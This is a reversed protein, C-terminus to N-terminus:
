VFAPNRAVVLGRKRGVPDTLIEFGHSKLFGMVEAHTPKGNREPSCDIAIMKIKALARECGYIVEPEAGEADCKLLAVQAIGQQEIYDDLRTAQMTVKTYYSKDEPEILTSDADMPRLWFSREGSTDAAAMPVATASSFLSLNKKLIRFVDADPEFSYTQCGRSLCFRSFEGINAGIDIVTDGTSLTYFEEYGFLEALYRIRTDIGKAFNLARYPTFIAMSQVGDTVQWFGDGDQQISLRRREPKLGSLVQSYGTLACAAWHDNPAIRRLLEMRPNM